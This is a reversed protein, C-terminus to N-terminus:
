SENTITHLKGCKSCTVIVKTKRVCDRGRLGSFEYAGAKKLMDLVSPTEIKEVVRYDHRCRTVYGLVAFPVLLAILVFVPIDIM